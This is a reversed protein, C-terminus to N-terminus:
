WSTLPFRGASLFSLLRQYLLDPKSDGEIIGIIRKGTTMVRECRLESGYGLCARRCHRMDGTALADIAQRLVAPRGRNWRSILAVV